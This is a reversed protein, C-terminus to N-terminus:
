KKGLRRSLEKYYDNFTPSKDELSFIKELEVVNSQINSITQTSNQTVIANKLITLINQYFKEDSFTITEREGSATKFIISYITKQSDKWYWGICITPASILLNFIITSGLTNLFNETHGLAGFVSCITFFIGAWYTSTAKSTDPSQQINKVSTIHAIPYMKGCVELRATTISITSSTFLIQESM